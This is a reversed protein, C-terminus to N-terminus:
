VRLSVSENGGGQEGIGGDIVVHCVHVGKPGFERALSQGLARRAFMGPAMISFKAGGRLAMTAGTFFLTGKGGTKSAAENKLLLPLIAQSFHFGGISVLVV